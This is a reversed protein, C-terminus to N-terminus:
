WQGAVECWTTRGDESTGWKDALADVIVLGRGDEDWLGPERPVPVNPSGDDVELGATSDTYSLVARVRQEPDGHRLANTVLESLLLPVAEAVSPPAGWARLSEVANRRAVQVWKPHQPILMIIELAAAAPSQSTGPETQAPPYNRTGANM